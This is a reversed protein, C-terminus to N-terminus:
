RCYVKRYLFLKILTVAIVGIVFITESMFFISASVTFFRFSILEINVNPNFPFHFNKNVKYKFM